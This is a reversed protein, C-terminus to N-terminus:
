VEFALRETHRKLEEAEVRMYRRTLGGYLLRAVGALRGAQVIQLAVRCGDGTPEVRHDARGHMGPSRVTWSFSQGPVLRDVTWTMPALRPQTIRVRSGVQLPAPGLLSVSRVTPLWGPWRQVDSLVSWVLDPPAQVTISEDYVYEAM